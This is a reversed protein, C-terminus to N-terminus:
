EHWAGPLTSEPLPMSVSRNITPEFANAVIAPPESSMIRPAARPTAMPDSELEFAAVDSRVMVSFPVVRMTATAAFGSVFVTFCLTVTVFVFLLVLVTVLAPEVDTLVTVPGVVVLTTVVVRVTVTGVVTVCVCVTV